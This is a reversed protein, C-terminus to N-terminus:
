RTSMPAVAPCMLGTDTSCCSLLGDQLGGCPSGKHITTSSSLSACPGLQEVLCGKCVSVPYDFPSSTVKTGDMDGFVTVHAVVETIDGTGLFDGIAATQEADIVPFGVGAKGEAPISGAFLQTRAALNRASLASILTSSDMSGTSRLEVDAGGMFFTHASAMTRSMTAGNQLAPSFLYGTNVFQSGPIPDTVDLRGFAVYEMSDGAPIVCDDGIVQNRIIYISYNTDTCGAVCILAVLGVLLRNMTGEM